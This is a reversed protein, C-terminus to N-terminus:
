RHCPKTKFGMRVDDQRASWLIYSFCIRREMAAASATRRAAPLAKGASACCFLVAGAWAVPLAAPAPATPAALPEKVVAATTPATAATPIMATAAEPPFSSSGAPPVGGAVLVLVAVLV